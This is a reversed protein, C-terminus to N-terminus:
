RKSLEQLEQESLEVGREKLEQQVAAALNERRVATVHNDVMIHVLEGARLSAPDEHICLWPSSTRISTTSESKWIIRYQMVGGVAAPHKFMEEPVYGNKILFKKWDSSADFHMGGQEAIVLGQAIGRIATSRILQQAANKSQIVSVWVVVALIIVGSALSAWLLKAPRSLEPPPELPLVLAVVDPHDTASM